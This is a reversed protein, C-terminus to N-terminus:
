GSIIPELDDVEQALVNADGLGAASKTRRDQLHFRAHEEVARKWVMGKRPCGPEPCDKKCKEMHLLFDYQTELETKCWYRKCVYKGPGEPSPPRPTHLSKTYRRLDTNDRFRKNPCV